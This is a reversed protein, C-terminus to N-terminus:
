PASAIRAIDSQTCVCRMSLRSFRHMRRTNQTTCRLARLKHPFHTVCCVAHREHHVGHQLLPICSTNLISTTCATRLTCARSKRSSYPVDFAHFSRSARPLCRGPHVPSQVPHMFLSSTLHISHSCQMHRNIRKHRTRHLRHGRHAHM